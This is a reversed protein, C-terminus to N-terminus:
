LDPANSPALFEFFYLVAFKRWIGASKRWIGASNRWLGQFIRSSYFVIKGPVGFCTVKRLQQLWSLAVSNCFFSSYNVEQSGLLQPHCLGAELGLLVRNGGYEGFDAMDQSFVSKLFMDSKAIYLLRCSISLKLFKLWM